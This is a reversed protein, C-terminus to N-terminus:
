LNVTIKKPTGRKEEIKPLTITLLGDMLATKIKTIDFPCTIDIVRFFKGFSREMCIFNIKNGDFCEYKLARITLTNRLISIDIEDNRVGPLEVEIIINCSTSLIDIAPTHNIATENNLGSNETDEYLYRFAIGINKNISQDAKSKKPIKVM